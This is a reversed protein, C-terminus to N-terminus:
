LVFGRFNGVCCIGHKRAINIRGADFVAQTNVVYFQLYIWFLLSRCQNEFRKKRVPVLEKGIDTSWQLNSPHQIPQLSKKLDKTCASSYYYWDNEALMSVSVAM